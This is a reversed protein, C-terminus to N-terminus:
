EVRVRKAPPKDEAHRPVLPTPYFLATEAPTYEPYACGLAVLGPLERYVCGARPGSTERCAPIFNASFARLRDQWNVWHLKAYMCAPEGSPLPPMSQATLSPQKDYAPTLGDTLRWGFYQRFSTRKATAGTIKHAITQNFLIIHGPPVDMPGTGEKFAAELAPYATKPFKAFGQPNVHAPLVNGPICSFKQPPAGPPDLNVWGGLVLDGPATYGIDRHWSEAGTATGWQRASFRDALLELNRGPFLAAFHPFLADYVSQRLARAEPSHTLSPLGTAGYGGLVIAAPHEPSLPAYIDAIARPLNLLERVGALLPQVKEHLKLQAPLPLVCVGHTRLAEM